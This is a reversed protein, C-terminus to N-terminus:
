INWDKTRRSGAKPSLYKVYTFYSANPSSNLQIIMHYPDVAIIREYLMM